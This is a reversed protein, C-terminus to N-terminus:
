HLHRIEVSSLLGAIVPLANYSAHLIYSAVVTRSVARALTFLIGV